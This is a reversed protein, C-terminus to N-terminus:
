FYKLVILMQLNLRNDVFRHCVGCAHVKIRVQNQAPEPISKEKVVFQEAKVKEVVAARM